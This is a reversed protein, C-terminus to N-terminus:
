CVISCTLFAKGNYNKSPKKYIKIEFDEVPEGTAGDVMDAWIDSFSDYFSESGTVYRNGDQDVIVYKTYDKNDSKENHVDIIVYGRPAIIKPEDDTVISDLSYADSVDKFAIAEKRSMEFSSEVITANYNERM